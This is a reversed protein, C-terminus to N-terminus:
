QERGIKKEKLSLIVERFLAIDHLGEFRRILRVSDSQRLGLLFTPTSKLTAIKAQEVHQDVVSPARQELCRSFQQQNVPASSVVQDIASSALPLPQAFLQDHVLWFQGQDRACEAAEAARRASPHIALPLNLVVYDLTGPEVFESRIKPANERAHRQCFPCEYDTFEVLVLGANGASALPLTDAQWTIDVDDVLEAPSLQAPRKDIWSSVVVSAVVTLVGVVVLDTLSIKREESM